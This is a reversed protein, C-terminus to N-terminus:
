VLACVNAMRPLSEGDLPAEGAVDVPVSSRDLTKGLRHTDAPRAHAAATAEQWAYEIGEM